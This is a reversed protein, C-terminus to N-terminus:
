SSGEAKESEDDWDSPRRWRDAPHVNIVPMLPMGVSTEARGRLYGSRYVNLKEGIKLSLVFAGTVWALGAAWGNVVWNFAAFVVWLVPIAVEFFWWSRRRKADEPAPKVKRPKCADDHADILRRLNEGFEEASMHEAWDFPNTDIIREGCAPCDLTM